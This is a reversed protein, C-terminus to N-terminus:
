VFNNRLVNEREGRNMALIRHSPMKKAAERYNYYMEYVSEEEPTKAESIMFGHDMTYRRVWARTSAEDSIEEAIIDM